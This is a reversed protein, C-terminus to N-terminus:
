RDLPVALDHRLVAARHKDDASQRARRLQAEARRDIGFLEAVDRRHHFGRESSPTQCYLRPILLLPPVVWSTVRLLVFLHKTNTRTTRTSRQQGDASIVPDFPRGERM